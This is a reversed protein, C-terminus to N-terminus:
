GKRQKSKSIQDHFESPLNKYESLMNLKEKTPLGEFLNEQDEKSIVYKPHIEKLAENLADFHIEKSDVLTGDLDFIFLRRHWVGHKDIM